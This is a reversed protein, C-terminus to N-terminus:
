PDERARLRRSGSAAIRRAVERFGAPSIGAHELPYVARQRNYFYHCYGDEPLAGVDCVEGLVAARAKLYALATLAVLAEGRHGHTWPLPDVADLAAVRALWQRWERADEALGTEELYQYWYAALYEPTFGRRSVDDYDTGRGRGTFWFPTAVSGVLVDVGFRPPLTPALLEQLRTELRKPAPLLARTEPPPLPVPPAAARAADKRAQYDEWTEEPGWGLTKWLVLWGPAPQWLSRFGTAGPPFFPVAPQLSPLLVGEFLGQWESAFYVTDGDVFHTDALRMLELQESSPTWWALLTRHKERYILFLTEGYWRMFGVRCGFYPNYTPVPLVARRQGGWAVHLDISVPLFGEQPADTRQEVWAVWGTEPSEVGELVEINPKPSPSQVPVQTLDEDPNMLREEYPTDQGLARGIAALLALHQPNPADSTM